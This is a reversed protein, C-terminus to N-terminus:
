RGTGYEDTLPGGDCDGARTGLGRLLQPFFNLSTKGHEKNGFFQVLEQLWLSSGCTTDDDEGGPGGQRVCRGPSVM